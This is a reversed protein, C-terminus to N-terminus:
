PKVGLEECAYSLLETEAFWLRQKLVDENDHRRPNNVASLAEAWERILQEVNPRALIEQAERIAKIAADARGQDAPDSSDINMEISSSVSELEARAEGMIRNVKSGM